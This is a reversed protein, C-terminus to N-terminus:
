RAAQPPEAYSQYYGTTPLNGDEIRNLVTGIICDRGLDEVARAVLPYPTSGAAIVLVIGGTLGALLSADPMITVPPADLLVWDFENV